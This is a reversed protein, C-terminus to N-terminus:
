ENKLGKKANKIENELLQLDKVEWNLISYQKIVPKSKYYIVINTTYWSGITTYYIEANACKLNICIKQPSNKKYFLVILMEDEIYVKYIFIYCEKMNCICYFFLLLLPIILLLSISKTQFLIHIIMYIFFYNGWESCNHKFCRKAYNTYQKNIIM